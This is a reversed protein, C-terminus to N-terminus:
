DYDVSEMIWNWQKKIKRLTKKIHRLKALEKGISQIMEKNEENIRHLQENEDNLKNLLDLLCETDEESDYIQQEYNDEIHYYEDLTFRKETM